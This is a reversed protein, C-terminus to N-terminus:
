PRRFWRRLTTRTTLLLMTVLSGGSALAPILLEEGWGHHAIIM